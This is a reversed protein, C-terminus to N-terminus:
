NLTRGLPEALRRLSELLAKFGTFNLSQAGDSLARDPDPHMEIMLGDAGAALGARAMAPVYDRKGTGHSPDVLIPLHSLHKAPPIVSLDLTNRSHDSFTRVGRECLVVNYNGGSMVYEASMLWEELTASMGRKLLVPKAARSVRRLLSFNQMNRTGIQIVDAAEEVADANETDMLETVIGIGTRERVRSLIDLGEKGM